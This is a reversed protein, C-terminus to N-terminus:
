DNDFNFDFSLANYIKVPRLTLKIRSRIGIGAVLLECLRHNRCLNAFLPPCAVLSMDLYAPIAQPIRNKLTVNGKLRRM